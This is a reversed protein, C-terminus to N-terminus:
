AATPELTVKHGLAELQTVLRRQRAESNRRKDFYDGGLDNYPEGNTLLHWAIVLISHGVAVAARQPGRRGRIQAYQAALYTNKTRGAAQGAEILAKRLWKSGKRTRGSRHKGASENNGPCMGAWSALHGATPFRSMDAGIEALIVQATRTSVGPITVLLTVAAEYPDLLEDIREGLLEITADAQDIRALMASCILAHHENFRGALADELEPIKKRLRGKAMEALVTTDREGAVLADIMARGSKTLVSSAVSSLKVGADELVKHLRQTERAREEIISKRYRTLDRLARFPEPPIFSPRVLGHELLSAGWIADNVDTKRGPVNRMHRANIVWVEPVQGELVWHVPKWYVGTAEMGVLTVQRENLWDALKLLQSTTTGFEAVEENRGAGVGPTRACAMVTDRHVDLFACREVIVEM